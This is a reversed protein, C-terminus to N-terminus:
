DSSSFGEVDELMSIEEENSSESDSPLHFIAVSEKEAGKFIYSKRKGKYLPLLYKCQSHTWERGLNYTTSLKGELCEREKVIDGLKEFIENDMGEEAVNQETRDFAKKQASSLVSINM